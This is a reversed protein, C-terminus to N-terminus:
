HAFIQFFNNNYYSKTLSVCQFYFFNEEKEKEQFIIQYCIEHDVISHHACGKWVLNTASKLKTSSKQAVNGKQIM